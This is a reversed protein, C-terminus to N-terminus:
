KSYLKQLRVDQGVFPIVRYCGLLRSHLREGYRTAIEGETLNTNIITPLSKLQRTNVLDYLVSTSFTTTFESGLDDLVLLECALVPDLYDQYEASGKSFRASELRTLLTHFPLYLVDFGEEIVAYAISLSLHTKGLGPKGLLLLSPSSHAFSQTYKVCESLTKSMIARDSVPSGPSLSESYYRLDFRDFGCLDVSAQAGLREYMLEKELQTVCTCLRGQCAGTDNCKACKYHPELDSPSFNADTLAQSLEKQKQLNFERIKRVQGAVDEGSLVASALRASTTSIEREIELARPARRAVALRREIADSTARERREAILERSKKVIELPYPM